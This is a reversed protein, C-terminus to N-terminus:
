DNLYQSEIKEADYVYLPAVSPEAALDVLEKPQM